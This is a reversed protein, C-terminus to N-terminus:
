SNHYMVLLELHSIYTIIYIDNYGYIDFLGTEKIGTSVWSPVYLFFTITDFITMCLKGSKWSDHKEESTVRVLNVEKQLLEKLKKKPNPCKKPMAALLALLCSWYGTSKVPWDMHRCM